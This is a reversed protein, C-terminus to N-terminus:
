HSKEVLHFNWSLLMFLIWLHLCSSYLFGDPLTHIHLIFKICNYCVATFLCDFSSIESLLCLNCILNMNVYWFYAHLRPTANVKLTSCMKNKPSAKYFVCSERNSRQDPMLILIMVNYKHSSHSLSIIVPLTERVHTLFLVLVLFYATIATPPSNLHVM